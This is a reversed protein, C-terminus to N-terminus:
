MLNDQEYLITKEGNRIIYVYETRHSMIWDKLVKLENETCHRLEEEYQVSEEPLIYDGNRLKDMFENRDDKKEFILYIVEGDNIDWSYVLPYDSSRESVRPSGFLDLAERLTVDWNVDTIDINTEGLESENMIEENIHTMYNSDIFAESNTSDSEIVSEQESECGILWFMTLSLLFLVVYKKM